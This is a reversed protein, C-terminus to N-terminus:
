EWWEVSLLAAELDLDSDYATARNVVDGNDGAEIATAVADAVAEASARTNGWCQVEFSVKTATITGDLGRMRDTDGRTYIVFPRSWEQEARDAGIRTSVLATVGANGALLAQLDTEASM